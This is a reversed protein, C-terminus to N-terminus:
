EKDGRANVFAYGFEGDTWILAESIGNSVALNKAAIMKRSLSSQLGFDSVRFQFLSCPKGDPGVWLSFAVPHTGLKCKRGGVLRLEKDISPVIVEFEVEGALMRRLEAASDTEISLHPDDIHNVHNNIALLAVTRLRQADGNEKLLVFCTVCLVAAAIFAVAARAFRHRSSPRSSHQSKSPQAQRVAATPELDPVALLREELGAPLDVDVLREQLCCDERLHDSWEQQAWSGAAVIAEELQQRQPEGTPLAAAETMWQRTTERDQLTM